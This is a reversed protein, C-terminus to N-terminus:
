KNIINSPPNGSELDKFLEKMWGKTQGELLNNFAEQFSGVPVSTRDKDPLLWKGVQMSLADVLDDNVSKPFMMFEEMLEPSHSNFLMKGMEIKPQLSMIRQHKSVTHSKVEDIGMYYNRKEM